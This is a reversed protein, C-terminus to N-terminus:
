RGAWARRAWLLPSAAVTVVLTLVVALAATVTPDGIQQYDLIVVALTENGPGHLLSSMTLEHFAFLFVLVSGAVLAPRLLPVAISRAVTLGDGGSVRGARFLDPHLGAAASWLPRHALALLKALYAVLIIAVTNGVIGGYALLIAVALASGPVAFTFSAATGWAPGRARQVWVVLGAVAVALGAAVVALWTSRALAEWTRGDMADGFNAFTWNSPVPSVGIARTLARLVLAVLPAVLTLTVYVWALTGALPAGSPTARRTAATSSTTGRGASRVDSVALVVLAVLALLLAMTVAQHFAETRASFTLARYIRTTLTDFGGPTGLVVPVGFSSLSAAFAVLWASVLSPRIMPLTVTRLAVASTAGAARAAREQDATASSRLAAATVLYALPVVNVAIVLVVGAPGELWGASLGTVDDLLGFPAYFAQWSLASVFPPVLLVGVMALRLAGAGKTLWRETLLSAGLGVGLAVTAALTSTWLSNAAATAVPGQTLTQVAGGPGAELTLRAIPYGVLAALLAGVALGGAASPRFPRGGDAV